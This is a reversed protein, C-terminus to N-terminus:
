LCGGFFCDELGFFCPYHLSRPRASRRTLAGELWVEDSIPM